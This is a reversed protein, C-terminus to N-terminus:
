RRQFEPSALLLAVAQAGSEARELAEVLTEGAGDGLLDRALRAPPARGALEGLAVAWEIRKYVAHPGLWHSATDPWGAPSPPSFPRQGMGDLARLVGPGEPRLGLGRYASVVFEVPTKVKAAPEQWAADLGVLSRAVVRLDGGTDLFVRALPEVAAEPPQDAVFHRALKFAVHRATAPHRALDRLIAAAQAEGDEAYRRGLVTRAGPEHVASAFRFRGAGDLRAPQVTWGTLAMAFATVDDQGYGGDVGLTHLELIERALNENLGRGVRRGRPSRPGFSRQNDLYLLMAPHRVAALLLDEFRGLVRPRIAEREFAGAIPAVVPKAASVAFHNSWFWVLRELLSAESDIAAWTRATAEDRYTSRTFQGLTPGDGGAAQRAAIRAYAALGEESPLLRAPEPVRRPPPGDLQALLWGRPDGAAARLEGRRAGLGFRNAAIAAATTTGPRAM